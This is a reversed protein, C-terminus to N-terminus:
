LHTLELRANKGLWQQAIAVAFPTRDTVFLRSQNKQREQGPLIDTKLLKKLPDIIATASSILLVDTGMVEGIQRELAPYHTCGLILTDVHQKKLPALYVELVSVVESGDVWGEEIFPVLLPTAVEFVKTKRNKAKLKKEYIHSGITARTGIIGIRHHQTTKLATAVAPDIVGVIPVSFRKRLSPLAVASSTNCGIVVITAGNKILFEVGQTSYEIIAEKSKNGYPVRATDGLYIFPENPFSKQIAAAVILGGIGSDFIGIM